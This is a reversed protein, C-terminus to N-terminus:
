DVLAGVLMRATSQLTRALADPQTMRSAPGVIELAARSPGSAAPIPVAIARVGSADDVLAYQRFATARLETRDEAGAAHAAPDGDFALLAHGLGTGLLPLREGPEADLRLREPSPAVLRVQVGDGDRVGIRATERTEAALARLADSADGAAAVVLPSRALRVLRPGPLYREGTADRCLLGQGILTGLLRHATSVSLDAQRALESLTLAGQAETFCGLLKAARAVSQVESM